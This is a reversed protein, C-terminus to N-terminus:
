FLCKKEPVEKDNAAFVKDKKFPKGNISENKEKDDLPDYGFEVEDGVEELGDSFEQHSPFDSGQLGRYHCWSAQRFDPLKKVLNSLLKPNSLYPL